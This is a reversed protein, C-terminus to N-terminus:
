SSPFLEDQMRQWINMARKKEDEEIWAGSTLIMGKRDSCLKLIRSFYNELTESERRPIGGIYAVEHKILKKIEAILDRGTTFNLGKLLPIKCYSDHLHVGESRGGEPVGGCYHIWGGGFPEFAKIHYPLVFEEFIKVSLLIGSDDCLRVGGKDMWYGSANGWTEGEGALKKCLRSLGLYAKTSEEMLYHVFSPDEFFDTFIDHGRTQAAIDFPGQTDCHHVDILEGLGYEKLTKLHHETHEIIRGTIGLGQIDEPLRFQQLEEKPIPKTVVPKTHRPVAFEVGFLTPANIVGTDARLSPVCDSHSAGSSIVGKMQEVFSKAPDDWQEKWDFSPLKDLEPVSSAFMLPLYDAEQGALIAGQRKKAQRVIDPDLKARARGCILKVAEITNM